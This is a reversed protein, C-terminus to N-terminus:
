RNNAYWEILEQLGTQYPKSPVWGWYKYALERAGSRYSGDTFDRGCYEASFSTGYRENWLKALSDVVFKISVGEGSCANAIKFGISPKDIVKEILKCLDEVHLYDLVQSGDNVIIPNLGSSMREMSKIFVSPYGKGSYQWPGYIFYLRLATCDIPFHQAIENLVNEGFLKSSGYLTQPKPYDSEQAKLMKMSGHAYLSSSFVLQRVGASAALQLVRNTEYFNTNYLPTLDEDTSLNHKKIAALHILVDISHLHHLRLESIEETIKRAKNAGTSNIAHSFGENDCYSINIDRRSSLHNILNRGVFGSGGTILINM